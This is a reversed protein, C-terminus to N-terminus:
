RKKKRKYIQLFSKQLTEPVITRNLGKALEHVSCTDNGYLDSSIRVSQQAAITDIFDPNNSKIPLIIDRKVRHKM